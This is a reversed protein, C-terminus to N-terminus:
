YVGLDKLIADFGGAKLKQQSFEMITPQVPKRKLFWGTSPHECDKENNCKHCCAVTNEWSTKGGKSLPLIHDVTLKNSLFEKGCYQCTHHDRVFLNSKSWKVARGYFKRFAKILRLVLPRLFGKHIEESTTKVVEVVGRCILRIAHHLSIAQHFQWNADLLIVQQM